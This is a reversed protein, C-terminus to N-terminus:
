REVEVGEKLTKEYLWRMILKMIMEYTDSDFFTMDLIIDKGEFISVVVAKAEDDYGIIIRRM